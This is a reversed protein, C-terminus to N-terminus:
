EIEINGRRRCRKRQLGLANNHCGPLFYDGNQLDGNAYAILIKQITGRIFPVVEIRSATLMRYMRMSIAGCILVNIGQVKFFEAKYIINLNPINLESRQIERNDEYDIVLLQNATDM